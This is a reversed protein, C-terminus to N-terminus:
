GSMLLQFGELRSGRSHSLKNERRVNGLRGNRYTTLGGINNSLPNSRVYISPHVSLHYISPHISLRISLRHTAYVAKDLVAKGVPIRCTISVPM